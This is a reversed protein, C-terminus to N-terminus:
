TSWVHLFFSFLMVLAVGGTMFGFLIGLMPPWIEDWRAALARAPTLAVRGRARAARVLRARRTAWAPTHGARASRPTESRRPTSRRAGPGPRDEWASGHGKPARLARPRKIELTDENSVGTM